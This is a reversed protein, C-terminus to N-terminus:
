ADLQWSGKLSCASSASRRIQANVTNNPPKMDALHVLSRCLSHCGIGPDIPGEVRFSRERIDFVLREKTRQAGVSGDIPGGLPAM